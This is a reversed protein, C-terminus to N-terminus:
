FKSLKKKEINPSVRQLTPNRRKMAAKASNSSARANPAKPLKGPAGAASRVIDGGVKIAAAGDTGLRLLPLELLLEEDDLELSPQSSSFHRLRKCPRTKSLHCDQWCRDGFRGPGVTEPHASATDSLHGQRENTACELLFHALSM